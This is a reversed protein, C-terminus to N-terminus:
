TDVFKEARQFKKGPLSGAGVVVDFGDRVPNSGQVEFAM